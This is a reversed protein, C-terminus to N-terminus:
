DNNTEKTIIEAILDLSFHHITKTDKRLIKLFGDEFIQEDGTINFIQGDRLGIEIELM